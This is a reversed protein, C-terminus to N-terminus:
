SVPAGPAWAQRVMIVGWSDAADADADAAGGPVRGGAGRPFGAVARLARRLVQVGGRQRVVERPLGRRQPALAAPLPAVAVGLRQHLLGAQPDHEDREAGPGPEGVVRRGRLHRHLPEGPAQAHVEGVPGELDTRAPQDGELGADRM